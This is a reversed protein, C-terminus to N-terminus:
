YEHGGGSLTTIDYGSYTCVFWDRGYSGNWCRAAQRLGNHVSNVQYATGRACRQTSYSRGSNYNLDVCAIGNAYNGAGYERVFWQSRSVDGRNQTLYGKFYAGSDAFAPAAAAGVAGIAAAVGATVGLKRTDIRQRKVTEGRGDTAGSTADM